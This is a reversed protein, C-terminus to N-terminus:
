RNVPGAVYRAIRRSCTHDNLVVSIHFTFSIHSNSSLKQIRAKNRKKHKPNDHTGRTLERSRNGIKEDKIWEEMEAMKMTRRSQEKM